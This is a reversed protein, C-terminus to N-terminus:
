AKLILFFFFKFVELFVFMLKLIFGTIKVRVEDGAVLKESQDQTCYCPLSVDSLYQM